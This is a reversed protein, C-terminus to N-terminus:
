KLKHFSLVNDPQSALSKSLWSEYGGRECQPIYEVTKSAAPLRKVVPSKIAVQAM